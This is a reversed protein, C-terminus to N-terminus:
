PLNPRGENRLTFLPAAGTCSIAFMKSPWPLKTKDKRKDPNVSRNEGTMTITEQQACKIVSPAQDVQGRAKASQSM